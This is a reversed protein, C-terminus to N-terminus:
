RRLNHVRTSRVLATVLDPHLPRPVRPGGGESSAHAPAVQPEPRHDGDEASQAGSGTRSNSSSGGGSGARLGTLRILPRPLRALAAVLDAAGRVDLQKRAALKELETMWSAYAAERAASRPSLSLARLLPTARM